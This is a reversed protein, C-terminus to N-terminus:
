EKGLIGGHQNIYEVALQAGHLAANGDASAPGILPAFFGIKIKEPAATPAM